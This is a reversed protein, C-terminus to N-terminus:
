SPLSSSLSRLRRTDNALLCAVHDRGREVRARGVDMRFHVYDIIEDRRERVHMSTIRSLGQLCCYMVRELAFFPDNQKTKPLPAHPNTPIDLASSPPWSEATSDPGYSHITVRKVINEIYDLITDDLLPVNWGTDVRHAQRDRLM